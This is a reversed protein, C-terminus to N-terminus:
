HPSFSHFYAAIRVYKLSNDISEEISLGDRGSFKTTIYVDERALGSEHLAKGAEQENRYSQATDAVAHARRSSRSLSGRVSTILASTSRRTLRTSPGRGPALRGLALRLPQSRLAQARTDANVCSVASDRAGDNLKLEDWPM